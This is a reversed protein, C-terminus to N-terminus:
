LLHQDNTKAILIESLEDMTVPNQLTTKTIYHNNLVNHLSIYLCIMLLSTNSQTYVQQAYFCLITSGFYWIIENRMLKQDKSADSKFKLLADALNM